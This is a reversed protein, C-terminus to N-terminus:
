DRWWMTQRADHSTRENESPPTRWDGYETTLREDYGAPAPFREGCFDLFVKDSFWKRHWYKKRGTTVAIYFCRKSTEYSYKLRLRHLRSLNWRMTWPFIILRFVRAALHVCDKAFGFLDRRLPRPKRSILHRLRLIKNRVKVVREQFRDYEETSDPAGDLPFIDVGVGPDERTWRAKQGFFTREMECLRAFHLYCNGRSPAYLRYKRSDCYERVFRDYDPRPMVIDADDDWPIFGGHRAAGLLTGSDLFYCIKRDKCFSDIHKLIELDVKQIDQCTMRRM